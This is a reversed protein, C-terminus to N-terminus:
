SVQRLLTPLITRQLHREREDKRERCWSYFPTQHRVYTLLVNKSTQLLPLHIRMQCVLRQGLLEPQTCSTTRFPDWSGENVIIWMKVQNTFGNGSLRFRKLLSLWFVLIDNYGHGKIWRQAPKDECVKNQSYTSFYTVDIWLVKYGLLCVKIKNKVLSILCTSFLLYFNPRTDSVLLM